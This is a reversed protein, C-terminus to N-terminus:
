VIESSRIQFTQCNWDRLNKFAYFISIMINKSFESYKRAPNFACHSSPTPLISSPSLVPRPATMSRCNPNLSRQISINTWQFQTAVRHCYYLECKCVFLVYFLVFLKPLTRATGWRQSNYGPIQRIVTPFLVSFGWDPYGFLALQCSSSVYVYLLFIYAYCYFYM